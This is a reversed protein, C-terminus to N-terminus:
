CNNRKQSKIWKRVEDKDFRPSNDGVDYVPMGKTKVWNKITENSVGFIRSAFGYDFLIPVEDWSYILKLNRLTM